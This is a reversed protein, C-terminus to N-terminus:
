PRGGSRRAADEELRLGVMRDGEGRPECEEGRVALPAACPLFMDKPLRLEGIPDTELALNGGRGDM